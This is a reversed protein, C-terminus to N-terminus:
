SGLQGLLWDHFGDLISVASDLQAVLKPMLKVRFGTFTPDRHSILLGEVQLTDLLHGLEDCDGESPQDNLTVTFGSQFNGGVEIM